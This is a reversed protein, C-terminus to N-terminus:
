QLLRDDASIMGLNHIHHCAYSPSAYILRSVVIAKAANYLANKSLGHAGVYVATSHM